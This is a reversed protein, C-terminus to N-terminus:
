LRQPHIRGSGRHAILDSKSQAYDGSDPQEDLRGSGRYAIEMPQRQSSEDLASPFGKSDNQSVMGTACLVATLVGLLPQYSTLM